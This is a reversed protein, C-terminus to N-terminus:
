IVIIIEPSRCHSAAVRGRNLRTETLDHEPRLPKFPM